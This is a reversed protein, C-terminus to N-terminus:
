CHCYCYYDDYDNSYCHDKVVLPSVEAYFHSSSPTVHQVRKLFVKRISRERAGGQVQIVVFVGRMLYGATGSALVRCALVNQCSRHRFHPRRCRCRAGCGAVGEAGGSLVMGVLVVQWWCAYWWQYYWWRVQRLVVVGVGVGTAM